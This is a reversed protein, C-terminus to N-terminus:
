VDSSLIEGWAMALGHADSQRAGSLHMATLNKEFAVREMAQRKKRQLELLADHDAHKKVDFIEWKLGYKPPAFQTAEQTIHNPFTVVTNAQSLETRLEMIKDTLRHRFQVAEENRFSVPDWKERAISSHNRRPITKLEPRRLPAQSGIESAFSVPDKDSFMSVDVIQDTSGNCFFSSGSDFYSMELM